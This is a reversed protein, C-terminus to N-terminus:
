WRIFDLPSEWQNVRYICDPFCHFNIVILRDMSPLVLQSRLPDLVVGHVDRCLTFTRTVGAIPLLDGGAEDFRSRGNFCCSERATRPLSLPRSFSVCSTIAWLASRPWSSGFARKKSVFCRSVRSFVFYHHTAQRDLGTENTEPWKRSCITFRPRDAM